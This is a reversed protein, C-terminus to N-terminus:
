DITLVWELALLHRVYMALCNVIMGMQQMEKQFASSLAPKRSTLAIYKAGRAAMWKCLSQGLEGTLGALLYTRDARFIVGDDIARISIEVAKDESEVVAFQATTNNGAALQQVPITAVNTHELKVVGANNISSFVAALVSAVDKEAVFSRVETHTDWLFSTNIPQCSAPLNAALTKGTTSNQSLDVFKNADSPLRQRVFRHPLNEPIYIWDAPCHQKISTTFVLRAALTQMREQLADAIRPHAEHIVVTDNTELYHRIISDAILQASLLGLAAIPDGDCPHCWSTPVSVSSEAAHSAFVLREGNAVDVGVGLLLRCGQVIEVTSLLFNTVSLTRTTATFPLAPTIHLPSAGEVHWTGDNATLMLRTQQMNRTEKVVRRATNYRNNGDSYPYLRPIIATTNEIYVEPEMTWLLEEPELERSWKDLLELRLLHEAIISYAGESVVDIDLAQININPYEFRVCRGLGLSMYGFANDSRAGSTVWLINGSGRWLAKLGDMVQPGFSSFVPADLEALSLVTSSESLSATALDAVCNFRVVHDFRSAFVSSLKQCLRHVKLTEGGVIVLQSAKTPPLTTIDSLPSRLMSVREDVAQAFFVHGPLIKHVPPTTSDIGDFGCKHLLSDWQPLTLTPGWRRGTEAGLWWGPLTGMPLGVRLCDNNVTELIIVFGGPKLFSRVYTMMEELGLTAHLVNSAIVLDYSGETFGQSAPSNNMDYTKFIIRDAYERFREEAAEFFGSSVDTYTYTSFASGLRPLIM